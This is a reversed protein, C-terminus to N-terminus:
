QNNVLKSKAISFLKELDNQSITALREIMLDGFERNMNIIRIVTSLLQLHGSLASLDKALGGYDVDLSMLYSILEIAKRVSEETPLTVNFTVEALEQGIKHTLDQSALCLIIKNLTILQDKELTEVLFLSQNPNNKASIINKWLLTEEVQNTVISVYTEAIDNPITQLNKLITSLRLQDDM